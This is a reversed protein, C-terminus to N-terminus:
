PQNVIEPLDYLYIGGNEKGAKQIREDFGSASFLAYYFKAKEKERGIFIRIVEQMLDRNLLDQNLM